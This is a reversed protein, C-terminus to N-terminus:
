KRQAKLIKQILETKQRGTVEYAKGIERLQHIDRQLLEAETFIVQGTSSVLPGDEGAEEAQEDTDYVLDFINPNKAAYKYLTAWNAKPDLSRLYELGSLKNIIIRCRRSDVFYKDEVIRDVNVGVGPRNPQVDQVKTLSASQAM